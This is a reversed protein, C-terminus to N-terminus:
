GPRKGSTEAEGAGVGSAEEAGTGAAEAGASGWQPARFWLLIGAGIFLLSVWQSHALRLGGMSLFDGETYYRTADVLYRVVSSAILYLGFIRGPRARLRSSRALIGFLAFNAVSLYLQSPHIAADGLVWRAHSGEPYTVAWPLNCASGFCCGNFFCGLRTIGEGLALAPALLDSVARFSWGRSRIFIAGVAIAAVVGGYQTLGGRWVRFVDIWAGDFDGPHQIAYYLRAGILASALIWWFFRMLEDERYGLPRARRTVWVSGVLFALALALGYAHIRLPGWELLIPKM